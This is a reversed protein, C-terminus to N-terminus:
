RRWLSLLRRPRLLRRCQSQRASQRSGFRARRATARPGAHSFGNAARGAGGQRVTARAHPQGAGGRRTCCLQASLASAQARAASIARDAGAPLMTRRAVPSTPPLPLNTSNCGRRVRTTAGCVPAHTHAVPPQRPHLGGEARATLLWADCCATQLSAVAPAAALASAAECLSCLRAGRRLALSPM